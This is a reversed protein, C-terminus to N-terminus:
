SFWKNVCMVKIYDETKDRMIHLGSELEDLTLRHSILDAPSVARQALLKLVYNWDDDTVDTFMKVFSIGANNILVDIKGYKGIIYDVMRQVEDRKSVDAKYIEINEFEKELLKAIEKFCYESKGSGSKGYIIRLGM